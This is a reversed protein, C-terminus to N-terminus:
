RYAERRHLVHQVNIVDDNLVFLVRYDGIRLRYDNRGQLKKIDAPGGEAYTALRALVRGAMNAPIGQLDHLADETFQLTRVAM